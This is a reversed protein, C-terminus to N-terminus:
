EEYLHTADIGQNGLANIIDWVKINVGGKVSLIFKNSLKEVCWYWDMVHPIDPMIHDIKKLQFSTDISTEFKLTAM